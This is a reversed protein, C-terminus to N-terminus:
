DFSANAAATNVFRQKGTSHAGILAMLERITFGMNAFRDTLVKVPSNPNPLLGDPTINLSLKRGVYTNTVPGGPCA